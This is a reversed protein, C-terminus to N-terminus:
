FLQRNKGIRGVAKLYAELTDKRAGPRAGSIADAVQVIVSESAKTRINKTIRFLQKSLKPHFM